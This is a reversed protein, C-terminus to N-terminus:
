DCESKSGNSKRDSDRVRRKNEALKRLMARIDKFGRVAVYITITSYWLLCVATLLKWFLPGM